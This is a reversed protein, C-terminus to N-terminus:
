FCHDSHEAWIYSRRSPAGGGFSLSVPTAGHTWSLLGARRRVRAQRDVTPVIRRRARTRRWETVGPPERCAEANGFQRTAGGSGCEVLALLGLPADGLSRQKSCSGMISGSWRDNGQLQAVAYARGSPRQPAVPWRDDLLYRVGASCCDRNLATGFIV